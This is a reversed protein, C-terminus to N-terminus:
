ISSCFTNKPLFMSNPLCYVILLSKLESSRIISMFRTRYIYWMRYTLFCVNINIINLKNVFYLSKWYRLYYLLQLMARPVSSVHSATCRFYMCYMVYIICYYTNLLLSYHFSTLNILNVVLLATIIQIPNACVTNVYDHNELRKM